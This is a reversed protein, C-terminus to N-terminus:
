QIERTCYDDCSIKNFVDIKKTKDQKIGNDEFYSVSVKDNVFLKLDDYKPKFAAYIQTVDKIGTLTICMGNSLKIPNLEDSYKLAAFQLEPSKLLNFLM